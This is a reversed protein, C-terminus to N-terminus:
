LLRLWAVPQGKRVRQGDTALLGMLWGAFPTRVPEGGVLGVVDGEALIEGGTTVVGSAPVNAYLGTVPSVVLRESVHLHESLEGMAGLADLEEFGGLSMALVVDLDDPKAVALVRAKPAAQKALRALSPRPGIQVVADVGLSALRRISQSWRVPSCLQASLLDRWEAPSGHPRGDVNAVVPVEPTLFQAKALAERLRDRAPTMFRTHYAGGVELRIVRGAGLELAAREAAEVAAVSGAVVTHEPANYNAVWVDGDARSCAAAADDDDLGIISSMTGPHLEDAAQMAEAREVVLRVGDEFSLAGASILAAYEGVSHGLCATPVVGIRRLALDAMLSMVLIALQANRTLRLEDADADLLLHAVDRGSVASARAVLEWADDEDWGRGMGPVQAGQGSFSFALM